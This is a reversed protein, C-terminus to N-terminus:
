LLKNLDSQTLYKIFKRHITDRFYLFAPGNIYGPCGGSPLVQAKMFTNRAINVVKDGKQISSCDSVLAKKGGINIVDLKM